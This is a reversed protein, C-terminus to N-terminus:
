AAVEKQARAQRLADRVERRRAYQCTLCRGHQTPGYRRWTWPTKLHGAKRCRLGGNHTKAQRERYCALCRREIRGSRYQYVVFDELGHEPCGLLDPARM